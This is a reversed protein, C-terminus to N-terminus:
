GSMNEEETDIHINWHWMSIVCKFPFQGFYFCKLENDLYKCLSEPPSVSTYVNIGETTLEGDEEGNLPAGIVCTLIINLFVFLLFYKKTATM